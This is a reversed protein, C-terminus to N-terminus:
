DFRLILGLIRKVCIEMEERKLVGAKMADLLREPYGCAM